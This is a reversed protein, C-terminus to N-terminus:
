RVLVRLQHGDDASQLAERWGSAAPPLAAGPLLSATVMLKPASAPVQMTLVGDAYDTRATREGGSVFQRRLELLRRYWDLLERNPQEEAWTLKSRRFTEPDEPDPVQHFDFDKFESRRGESVAKKLAPDQFDTFFQFPAAEDYEQGMFLLPTHPALLLLAAALKRVGRAVLTTLRDGQARNGVQDHNQMSIVNAPLSMGLASAGRPRNWFRFLEGQFVYGERLARAIQQPEGFDQYYGQREGTFFAHMAHHFDDSWVANLGYGSDPPKVYRPDNEDTEAIVCLKRGVERGLRQVNEQIEAVVHQASDDRITQVADLRLGDIHYERIWYLANEAVFRRVAGCGESDYNVADGWPTKHKATLYPGFKPLYNGEPGFHNYVVDLMVGLGARHAADVLRKLGEPGGYSAQVAYLSVGDYGWNREGPFASVPMIEIMTIGLRKLYELKGIAGDFTEEPTFTGIHLEYLVYDRLELGSWGEDSWRFADTNLIATPGHVGGPLFRSVPDPIALGDDLVYFYRDGASAEATAVFDEGERQMPIDPQDAPKAGSRPNEDSGQLLRLKVNRQAPAWVRFEASAGTLTAGYTLSRTASKM